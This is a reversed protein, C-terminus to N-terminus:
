APGAALCAAILASPPCPLPSHPSRPCAPHPHPPPPLRCRATAVPWGGRLLLRLWRRREKTEWSAVGGDLLGWGGVGAVAGRVRVGVELIASCAKRTSTIDEGLRGAKEVGLLGDVAEQRQGGRALERFSAIDADVKAQDITSAKGQLEEDLKDVELKLDEADM